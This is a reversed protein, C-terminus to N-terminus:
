QSLKSIPLIGLRIGTVVADLKTSADLKQRLNRIHNRVTHRSIGIEAAIQSTDRGIAVLRLVEQERRTLSPTNEPPAATEPYDSIVAAGRATLTERLINAATKAEESESSSDFVHMLLPADQLIGTVVMPTVSVWKRNGDACLMHLRSAAPVLGARLYRLSPCGKQCQPSLAGPALGGFVEYCRRGLVEQTTHGLMREAARNWFVITQDVTVGYAGCSADALARLLGAATM